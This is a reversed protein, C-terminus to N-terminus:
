ILARDKTEISRGALSAWGAQTLSIPVATPQDVDDGLVFLTSPDHREATSAIRVVGALADLFRRIM